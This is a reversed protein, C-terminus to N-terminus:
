DHEEVESLRRSKYQYANYNSNVSSFMNKWKSGGYCVRKTAKGKRETIRYIRMRLRELHVASPIM